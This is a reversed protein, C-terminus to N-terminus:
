LCNGSGDVGIGNCCTTPDGNDPAAGTSVCCVGAGEEDLAGCSDNASCCTSVATCAGNSPICSLCNGNGDVGDQSCCTNPDGNDPASGDQACCVSSSGCTDVSSCCSQGSACTAGTLACGNGCNGNGDVSGSTCCTTADGNDPPSGDAVCCVGGDSCGDNAGCCTGGSACSAGTAICPPACNGNGDLGSQACCVTPDGNDPPTGVAVCCVGSTCADAASCCAAGNACSAGPAVCVPACNGNGDVGGQSCCTTPDLNDPANGDAACCISNTCSDSSSCCSQGSMCSVGTGVCTSLCNGNSDVGGQSCCTTADGNLPATGDAACGPGGGTGADVGGSLGDPDYGMPPPVGASWDFGTYISAGLNPDLGPKPVPPFLTLCTSNAQLTKPNSQLLAADAYAAGSPLAESGWGGSCGICGSPAPASGSLKAEANSFDFLDFLPDANADRNTLAPLGFRSEVFRLLSTHDYTYHSVYQHKAWPSIVLLPVRFGYHDFQGGYESDTADVGGNEGNRPTSVGDSYPTHPGGGYAGSWSPSINDPPCATPPTVHDYLGGYEDYTVFVVSRQWVLPNQMLIRMVDYTLRQGMQPTAPPHEDEGNVDEVIDPDVFNVPYLGSLAGGQPTLSSPDAGAAILNQLSQNETAVNAELGHGGIVRPEYSSTSAHPLVATDGYWAGWRPTGGLVSYRDRVYQTYKVGGASLDDYITNLVTGNLQQPAPNPAVKGAFQNASHGSLLGDGYDNSMNSTLGRSTAAYLYDRNVFTPGIVSAHYQDAIAFEDATWYYFPIDQENYYLMARDGRLLTGDSPNNPTQSYDYWNVPIPLPPYGVNPSLGEWFRDNAMFFGDQRGSDWELHSCWWEHCTDSVCQEGDGRAHRWYHKQTPDAPNQGAVEPNFPANTRPNYAGLDLVADETAQQAPSLLEYPTGPEDIGDPTNQDVFSNVRIDSYGQAKLYAQFRGYYNDFSRNEMMLIFVYQIPTGSGLAIPTAMAADEYGGVTAQPLQGATYACTSRFCRAQVETTPPVTPDGCSATLSFGADSGVKKPGGCAATALLAVLGLRSVFLSAPHTAV